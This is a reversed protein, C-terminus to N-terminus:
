ELLGEQCQADIGLIECIVSPNPERKGVARTFADAEAEVEGVPGDESEQVLRNALVADFVIALFILNGRRRGGDLLTGTKRGLYVSM